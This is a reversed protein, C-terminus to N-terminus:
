WVHLSCLKPKEVKVGVGPVNGNPYAKFLNVFTMLVLMRM